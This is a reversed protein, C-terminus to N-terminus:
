RIQKRENTSPAARLQEVIKLEQETLVCQATADLAREAAVDMGNERLLPITASLLSFDNHHALSADALIHLIEDSPKANTQRWVQALLTYTSSHHRSAGLTAMLPKIVSNAESESLRHGEGKQARINDWRLQAITRWVEPRKVNLAAAKELHELAGTKDGTRSEYLGLAGLFEPNHLAQPSREKTNLLTERTLHPANCAWFWEGFIRARDYREADYFVPLAATKRKPIPVAFQSAGWRLGRDERSKKFSGYFAYIDKHFDAYNKGFCETFLSEDLPRKKLADLLKIYGSRIKEDPSFICYISFDSIQRKYIIYDRVTRVTNIGSLDVRFKEPHELVDRLLLRPAVMFQDLAVKDFNEANHATNLLIANERKRDFRRILVGSKNISYWVTDPTHIEDEGRQFMGRETSDSSLIKARAFTYNLNSMKMNRSALSLRFCAEVIQSVVYYDISQTKRARLGSSFDLFAEHNNDSGVYAEPIYVIIHAQEHDLKMLCAPQLSPVYKGEKIGQTESSMIQQGKELANQEIKTGIRKDVAMIFREVARDKILIIRTPLERKIHFLPSHTRFTDIIRIANQIIDATMKDNNLASLIEFDDVRAYRWRWKYRSAFIEMKEMQVIDEANESAQARMSVSSM